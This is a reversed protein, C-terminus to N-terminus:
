SPAFELTYDPPHLVFVAVSLCLESRRAAYTRHPVSETANRNAGAGGDRPFERRAAFM